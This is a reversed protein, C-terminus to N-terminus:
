QRLRAGHAAALRSVLDAVVADAEGDTLTRELHRLRLRLGISVMGAPLHEGQYRDFLTVAEVVGGLGRGTALLAAAEVTAPVLLALDREMAPFRPIPCYAHGPAVQAAVAGLDVEAVLCRGTLDFAAAVDPHLEGAWGLRVEGAFLDAGRGPHLFPEASKRWAVAGVGLAALLADLDGKLHFFDTEVPVAWSVATRAGSAFLALHEAEHAEVVGTEAFVVAVEFLHLATTGRRQNHAAVQLLDGILETRMVAQDQALPNSVRVWRRRPDDAALRLRDARGEGTFAVTVAERYGLAVALDTLRRRLRDVGAVPEPPRGGKPFTVPIRDYGYRRAIEEVVDAPREVDNRWSPVTVAVGGTAPAVAFGLPTLLATTTAVDLDIGLDRGARGLDLDVVVAPRRGPYLDVVEGEMRGGAVEALLACARALAVSVRDRDVQREFRHSSESHLALAQATRRVSIPDFSAAEIFLRRTVATVESATGGMVGALAVPGAADAIVLREPDLLREVGDLTTLSEGARARRVHLEGGALRDLDFAHLPQGLEFCVYNTVDVVNNIPRAGVQELRHALWAPSPGITVGVVARGTYRHCLSEEDIGVRVPAAGAGATPVVAPLHLRSAPAFAAVERAIGVLSLCDGRNPTLDIELIPDDLGLAAVLPQGVVAGEPLILIGDAETVLGLERASCLMGGSAVGRLKAKRIAVGGPLTCGPLAVAVRDGARQNRAGCVIQVVARSTEVQCVTLHDSDPHPAVAALRGVVLRDGCGALAAAPNEVGAVELGAMTLGDCLPALDLDFDVLERLWSLPLRM